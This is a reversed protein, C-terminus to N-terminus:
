RPQRQLLDLQKSAMRATRVLRQRATAGAAALSPPSRCQILGTLTATMAGANSTFFNQASATTECELALSVVWELNQEVRELSCHSLTCGALLAAVLSLKLINSQLPGPDQTLFAEPTLPEGGALGCSLVHDCLWEVLLTAASSDESTAKRHTAMKEDWDIAQTFAEEFETEGCLRQLSAQKAALAATAKLAVQESSLAESQSLVSGVLGSNSAEVKSLSLSCEQLQKRALGVEQTLQLLEAELPQMNLRVRNLLSRKLDGGKSGGQAKINSTLQAALPQLTDRVAQAAEKAALDSLATSATAARLRQAAQRIDSDAWSSFAKQMATNVAAELPASAADRVAARLQETSAAALQPGLEAQLHQEIQQRFPRLTEALAAAAEADQQPLSGVCREMFAKGDRSDCMRAIVKDVMSSWWLKVERDLSDKVLFQKGPRGTPPESARLPKLAPRAQCDGSVAISDALEQAAALLARSSSQGNGAEEPGQKTAAEAEAAIRSPLDRKVKDYVKQEHSVWKKLSHHLVDVVHKKTAAEHEDRSKPRSGAGVEENGTTSAAADAAGSPTGQAARGNTGQVAAASVEDGRVGADIKDASSTGGLMELMGPIKTMPIPVGRTGYASSKDGNLGPSSRRETEEECAAASPEDGRDPDDRESAEESMSADGDAM